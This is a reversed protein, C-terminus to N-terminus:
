GEGAEARPLRVVVAKSWEEEDEVHISGGNRSILDVALGLGRSIYRGRIMATSIRRPGDDVVRLAVRELGTIPDSETDVLIGIRGSSVEESVTLSNRLLNTLIDELDTQYIRLLIRETPLALTLGIGNTDSFAPERSVEAFIQRLLDESLELNCVQQVIQGLGRYGTDNL